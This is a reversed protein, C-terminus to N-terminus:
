APDNRAFAPGLDPHRELNVEVLPRGCREAFLRVLTSKGVQRAGRVILPKRNPGALWNDLFKFQDRHM